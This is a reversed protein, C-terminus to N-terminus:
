KAERAKKVIGSRNLMWCTSWKLYPNSTAIRHMSEQSHSYHSASGLLCVYSQARFRMLGMACQNFIAPKSLPSHHHHHHYHLVNKLLLSISDEPIPKAYWYLGKFCALARQIEGTSLTSILHAEGGGWFRYLLMQFGWCRFLRKHTWKQWNACTCTVM